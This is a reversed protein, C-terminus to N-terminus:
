ADDLGRLMLPNTSTRIRVPRTVPIYKQRQRAIRGDSMPHLHIAQDIRPTFHMSWVM